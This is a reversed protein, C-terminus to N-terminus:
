VSRPPPASPLAAEIESQIAAAAEVPNEAELIPRGVVLLDAGARIARAPTATRMQDGRDAGEPRIGPTVIFAGPWTSRMASAEEPSCVVGAAGSSRALASLRRVSEEPSGTLGVSALTAADLSTLVTVAVVRTPEGGRARSGENAGKVAARVMADGGSAHVTLISAGLSAAERSASEVTNPIDHLKLDLFVELGAARLDRVVRPGKATFLWLGVKVTGASRALSGAFPVIDGRPADLAVCLARRAREQDTM